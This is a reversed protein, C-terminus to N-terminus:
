APVRFRKKAPTPDKNGAKDVAWARFLHRGPKLGTYTKPSKCPRAKRKDLKCVFTSGAESSRFSFKAKGAALDKGPGKAIMTAPTTTDTVQVPPAPPQPPAPPTSRGDIATGCIQEGNTDVFSQNVATGDTNARGITNTGANAWYLQSGFLAVGCPGNADGIFNADAGSGTNTNARGLRTDPGFFGFSAWFINSSNVAVGCPFTTGPITVFHPEKNSGDLGARGIYSPSGNQDTWYVHGSDVAVGCSQSSENIFSKNPSSGDIKAKGIAGPLTSWFIATANVAVGNPETLGTIFSNNVGSGDINARGITDSSLNAWYIFSGDVAVAAPLDGTQIFNDVVNSGDNESRSIRDNQSDAWYIYASAPAAIFLLAAVAVVTM